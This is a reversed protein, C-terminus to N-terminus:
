DLKIVDQSVNRRISVGKEKLTKVIQPSLSNRTETPREQSLDISAEVRPSISKLSPRRKSRNEKDLRSNSTAQPVSITPLSNARSPPVNHRNLIHDRKPTVVIRKAQNQPPPQKSLDNTSKSINKQNMRGPSNQSMPRHNSMWGTPTLKQLSGSNSIATSGIRIPSKPVQQNQVSSPKASIIIKKKGNPNQMVGNPIKVLKTTTQNNSPGATHLNTVPLPNTYNVISPTASSSTSPASSIIRVAPPKSVKNNNTASLSGSSQLGSLNRAAILPKKLKRGPSVKPLSNINTVRNAPTYTRSTTIPSASNNVLSSTTPLTVQGNAHTAQLQHLHDMFKRVQQQFVPSQPLTKQGGKEPSDVQSLDVIPVSTSPVNATSTIKVPTAKTKLPKPSTMKMTRVITKPQPTTMQKGNPYVLKNASTPPTPRSSPALRPNSLVPTVSTSHPPTIKSNLQPPRHQKNPSASSSSTSPTANIVTESPRMKPLNIYNQSEKLGAPKNIVNNNFNKNQNQILEQRNKEALDRIQKDLIRQVDPDLRKQIPSSNQVVSNLAPKQIPHTNRPQQRTYNHPNNATARGLTISKEFQKSFTTNINNNRTASPTRVSTTIPTLTVSSNLAHSTPLQPPTVQNTGQKGDNFLSRPNLKPINPAVPAFAPQKGTKVLALLQPNGLLIKGKTPFYNFDDFSSTRDVFVINKPSSYSHDPNFTYGGPKVQSRVNTPNFYPQNPAQSMYPNPQQPIYPYQIRVGSPGPQGMHGMNNQIQHGHQHSPLVEKQNYEEWAANKEQEDLEEEPRNALLDQHEHWKYVFQHKLVLNALVRDEPVNPMPRDKQITPRAAYFEQIDAANYHRTIQHKDVVRHAVALKTVGRQYIKEEVTDITILRYVFVAKTQGFRFARFVSQTDYSPNWSVNMLIIRNAATLNLGLGGVKISMIFVKISTNRKDNFKDCMSTRLEPIITGDMRYYDKNKKFKLNQAFFHELNDMEAYSHAFILVKENNQIAEEVISLAVKMKTGLELEKVGEPSLLDKYWGARSFVKQNVAEDMMEDIVDQEKIKSKHNKEATTLLNPHSCIYTLIQVDALFTKHSVNGAKTLTVPKTSVFDLYTNYLKVQLDSLKIFVAQDILKPLYQKLETDEVRQVTNTLIKHLVHTRKKMFMIDGATSDEFQGNNIPNVFNIKYEKETGLLDPKVFNVMYYYELLNNQLPTGTLVIRRRTKVKNLALTRQSQKNRLLHGEDCIILDPGPDVLAELIKDKEILHYKKLKQLKQENVCLGFCEYGLVLVGGTRYWKNIIGFRQQAAKINEITYLKVQPDRIHKYALKYENRWNSVTSLPCVVLVHKTKTLEQYAFLTQILALAQLTKGLGMCHALICGSGKYSKQLQSVSEYCSDWMFQIGDRQHPKLRKVIQPHVKITIEDSADLILPNVEDETQSAFSSVSQSYVEKAKDREQLRKIREKEENHARQTAEALDDEELLARINRRGKGKKSPTDEDDTILIPKQPTKDKEPIDSDDSDSSENLDSFLIKKKSKAPNEEGEEDESSGSNNKKRRLRRTRRKPEKSFDDESDSSSTLKGTLLPDRKWAPRSKRVGVFDEEDSSDLDVVKTKKEKQDDSGSSDGSETNSKNSGEASEESQLLKAAERKEKRKKAARKRSDDSSVANDSYSDDREVSSDRINDMLAQVLDYEDDNDSLLHVSPSLHTSSGHNAELSSDENYSWSLESFISDKRRRTKAKSKPANTSSTSNDSDSSSTSNSSSSRNSQVRKKHRRELATLDCLREIEDRKTVGKTTSGTRRRKFKEYGDYESFDERTVKVYLEKEMGFQKRLEIYRHKQSKKHKEREFLCLREVEADSLNSESGDVLEKDDNILTDYINWIDGGSTKDQELPEERLVELLVSDADSDKEKNVAEEFDKVLELLEERGVEKKMRKKDKTNDEKSSKRKHGVQDNVEKESDSSEKSSDTDKEKLHDSLIKVLEDKETEDLKFIKQSKKTSAKKKTSKPQNSDSKGNEMMKDAQDSQDNSSNDDIAYSEKDLKSPKSTTGRDVEMNEEKKDSDREKELLMNLLCDRDADGMKFQSSEKSSEHKDEPEVSLINQSSPHNINAHEELMDLLDLSENLGNGEPNGPTMKRKKVPQTATDSNSDTGELLKSGAKEQIEVENDSLLRKTGGKEEIEPESDSQTSKLPRVAKKKFPSAVDSGDSDPRMDSDSQTESLPRVSKRKLIVSQSSDSESLKEAEEISLKNLVRIDAKQTPANFMDDSNESAFDINKKAISTDSNHDFLSKKVKDAPKCETTKVMKESSKSTGKPSKRDRKLPTKRIPKVVTTEDSSSQSDEINKSQQLKEKRRNMYYQQIVKFLAKRDKDKLKKKSKSTNLNGDSSDSGSVDGDDPATGHENDTADSKDENEADTPNILSTPNTVNDTVKSIDTTAVHNDSKSSNVQTEEDFIDTTGGTNSVAQTAANFIDETNNTNSENEKSESNDPRNLGETRINAMVEQTFNDFEAETVIVPDSSFSDPSDTNRNFENSITPQAIAEKTLLKEKEICQTMEDFIHDSTDLKNADTEKTAVQTAQNFVDTENVKEPVNVQTVADFISEHNSETNSNQNPPKETNINPETEADFIVGTNLSFQQSAEVPSKINERDESLYNSAPSLGDATSDSDLLKNTDQVDNSKPLNEMTSDSDWNLPGEREKNAVAKDNKDKGSDKDNQVFEVDSDDSEDISSLKGKSSRPSSNQQNNEPDENQIQSLEKLNAAVLENLNTLKNNDNQIENVPSNPVTRQEFIDLQDNQSTSQQDHQILEASNCDYIVTSSTSEVTSHHSGSQSEAPINSIEAALEDKVDEIHISSPESLQSVLDCNRTCGTSPTDKDLASSDPEIPTRQEKNCTCNYDASLKQLKLIIDKYTEENGSEIIKAELSKSFLVTNTSFEYFLDALASCFKQTDLNILQKINKDIDKKFQLTMYSVDLGFQKLIAAFEINKEEM